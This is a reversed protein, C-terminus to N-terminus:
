RGYLQALKALWAAKQSSLQGSTIRWTWWGGVTGPLNMRAENGLDLVDQMPVVATDAVSAFIGRIMDAVIQEENSNFYDLVRQQTKEDLNSFWGRTTENDHSGTYAVTNQMYNHPLFASSSDATFAFQLIRMGPYEFGDRLREVEPTIIGLDEAIIGLPGLVDRVTSFLSAEPGKRWEGHIATKADGPVTWYAEFGRFHDLRVMDALSFVTRFRAIWWKYGQEKMVDWHYLPNGWLQGTESFYDPPVGAQVELSGDERISFLEPQAWADASDHAIFIPIDGIIEIGKSHAYERLAGWQGFFKYQLFLQYAV